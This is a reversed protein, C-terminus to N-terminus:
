ENKAFIRKGIFEWGYKIGFYKIPLMVIATALRNSLVVWYPNKYLIHLWLTALGLDIFLTQLLLCSLIHKYDKKKKYLFFGFTLGYLAENLGFGPFYPGKPFILMGVFDSLFASIAGVYPGFVMSCLSVPVFGFGIRITQTEWSLFRTVVVHLAIFLSITVLMKTTIKKKSM